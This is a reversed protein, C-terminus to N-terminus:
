SRGIKKDNHVIEDEKLETAPLLGVEVCVLQLVFVGEDLAPGQLGEPVDGLHSSVLEASRVQLLQFVVELAGKLRKRPVILAFVKETGEARRSREEQDNDREVDDGAYEVQDAQHAIAVKEGQDHTTDNETHQRPARASQRPSHPFHALDNILDGRSDPIM